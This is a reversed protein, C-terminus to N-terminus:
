HSLATSSRPKYEYRYVITSSPLIALPLKYKGYLQSVIDYFDLIAFQLVVDDHLNYWGPSKWLLSTRGAELQLDSLPPYEGDETQLAASAFADVHRIFEAITEFYDISDTPHPGHSFTLGNDYTNTSKGNKHFTEVAKWHASWDFVLWRKLLKTYAVIIRTKKYSTLHSAIKAIPRLIDM